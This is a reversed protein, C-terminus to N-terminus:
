HSRELEVALKRFSEIDNDIDSIVKGYATYSSSNLPYRSECAAIDRLSYRKHRYSIGNVIHRVQSADFERPGGQEAPLNLVVVREPQSRLSVTVAAARLLKVVADDKYAKVWSIVQDTDPPSSGGCLATVALYEPTDSWDDPIGPSIKETQGPQVDRRYGGNIVFPFSSRSSSLIVLEIAYTGAEIRREVAQFIHQPDWGGQDSFYRDMTPGDWEPHVGYYHNLISGDWEGHHTRLELGRKSYIEWGDKTRITVLGQKPDTTSHPPASVIHGNLYIWYNDGIVGAPVFIKLVGVASSPPAARAIAFCGLAVSILFLGSRFPLRAISSRVSSITTNPDMESKPLITSQM